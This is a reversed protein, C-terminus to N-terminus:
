GEDPPEGEEARLEHVWTEAAEYTVKQETLVKAGVGGDERLLALLIHETGIHRHDRRMAERFALELVKRARPTFRPHGTSRGGPRPGRGEIEVIRTEVVPREVQWGALARAGLSEPVALVGLVLHETGIHDHELTRAAKQAEVVAARADRTFRGSVLRRKEERRGAGVLRNLWSGQRQQAAQRTVGLVEGVQAWSAGAARAEDVLLDLLQDGLEVVEGTVAVAARLRALPEPGEARADVEDILQQLDM